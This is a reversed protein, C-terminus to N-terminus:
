RDQFKSLAHDFQNALFKGDKGSTPNTSFISIVAAGISCEDIQALLDDVVEIKPREKLGNFLYGLTGAQDGDLFSSNILSDIARLM